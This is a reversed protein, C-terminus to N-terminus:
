KIMKTMLQGDADNKAGNFEVWPTSRQRLKKIGLKGLTAQPVQTHKLSKTDTCISIVTTTQPEQQNSGKGYM